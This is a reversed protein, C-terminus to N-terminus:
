KILTMQRVRNFSEAKIRIFYTGSSLNQANFTKTYKGPDQVENVLTQVRRGLVDYVALSVHTQSAIKYEINTTPNFPNPYNPLLEHETILQGSSSSEVYLEDYPRQIVVEKGTQLQYRVTDTGTVGKLLYDGFTSHGLMKVKVPYSTTTLELKTIQDEAVRFGDSTRVDLKPSPSQPPMKFLNRTDREVSGDTAYFIQTTHGQRFELKDFSQRTETLRDKPPSSSGESISLGVEGAQDAHIWYGTTPKIQDADSYSGGSYEFIPTSSLINDPDSINATSITDAIGGILNWGTELTITTDTFAGGNYKISDKSAGKVWFGSQIDFSNAVQYAGNYSFIEITNPLDIAEAQTLPMGVLNWEDNITLYDRVVATTNSLESENGNVDVATIRYFYAEFDTDTDLFNTSFASTSDYLVLENVDNGRYIRYKDLDSETNSDWTIQIDDSASETELSTPSAPPTTDDPDGGSTEISGLFIGRGHSGVAITGDSPRSTVYEAVSYGISGPTGDDSERTWTTSSGSLSNVSYLGTSTGVYYIPGSSTPFITASRLSPGPNSDDGKLNGEIATWNSGGDTTHYLGVINYNSMVVVVEDGDNPNIAIDHVYAGSPADPISIDVVDETAQADDLKFIKPEANSGSAGYYLRDSPTTTVDLTTITYGSTSVAEFSEWGTTTGGNNYSPIQDIETNRWMTTEGPYYMITEDNPDVAYPHIFLQNQADSPHVTSWDTSTSGDFPSTLSGDSEIGLRMVTGNQSSVYAYDTGWFAYSGDGSSVDTISTNQMNQSDLTFFPTGNDQTGGMIRNDDAQPALAVTYFQSTVYGEDTDIWDVPVATIDSTMSLGGDHGAWMSNPDDPHFVLVHQDPHQSPYQSVDNDNAYGGIWYEDKQADDSNDYGGEPTTAFGDRSRFLNTGGIMVFDPDDPKVAIVMNYNFQTNVFGVQGGFDPLNESRDESNDINDLDLMFFSVDENSGSGTGEYTFVYATDPASPAFAVVSRDHTSPFDTPTIDTWSNGDDTSLHIGPNDPQSGGADNESLAALITGNQNIVVDTYRYGGMDGLVKTFSSGGDSSRYVAGGNAAFYLDGNQPNVVIRSIYDFESDWDVDTDETSSLRSWTDGNDISKYIGTGFYSATSGRDSASNARIEGSSYYWTDPNVPDQALSTVSMNQNPNTKMEWTNGGDTSKWIGGSVGGAIINDPNERDIGLARTRGGLDAPGASQWIIDTSSQGSQTSKRMFVGGSRSPLNKSYSLERSRINDPIKNNAPDRLLQFFYETRARKTQIPDPEFNELEEETTIDHKASEFLVGVALLVIITVLGTIWIGTKSM